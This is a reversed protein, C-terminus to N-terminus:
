WSIIVCNMQCSMWSLLAVVRPSLRKSLTLGNWVIGCRDFLNAILAPPRLTQLSPVITATDTSKQYGTNHVKRCHHFLGAAFKFAQLFIVIFTYFSMSISYSVCVIKDIQLWLVFNAVFRRTTGTFGNINLWLVKANFCRRLYFYM